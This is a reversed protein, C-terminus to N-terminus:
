TLCQRTDDCESKEISTWKGDGDYFDLTAPGQPYFGGFCFVCVCVHVCM